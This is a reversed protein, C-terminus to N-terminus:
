KLLTAVVRFGIFPDYRTVDQPKSDRLRMQAGAYEWGGGRINVRNAAASGRQVPAHTLEWVNGAIDLLGFPSAGNPFMGVATPRKIQSEQFNGFTPDFVDGSAFKLGAPGRAAAEWERETPLRVEFGLRASLWRTFAIAEVYAVSERPYNPVQWAGPRFELDDLSAVGKPPRLGAWWAPNKYDQAFTDFQANTVLYRSMTFRPVEVEEDGRDKTNYVIARGEVPVWDFQPLGDHLGVGLRVDGGTGDPHRDNLREGFRARAKPAVRLNAKGRPEMVARALPHSEDFENEDICRWAVNPNVDKLWGIVAWADFGVRKHAGAAVGALLVASEDWPTALWWQAGPWFEAASRGAQLAKALADAAFYQQLLQHTFRVGDAMREFLNASFAFDVIHRARQPDNLHAALHSVIAAEPMVTQGQRQMWTAAASLAAMQEGAAIWPRGPRVARRGQEEIMKEAFLAFLEGQNRPPVGEREFIEITLRLLYPNRALELAGPLKDENRSNAWLEAYKERLEFELALYPKFLEPRKETQWFDRFVEALDPEADFAAAAEYWAGFLEWTAEGALGWFLAQASDDDLGQRTMFTMLMAIDLPLVDFRKLDLQREDYEIKRCTVIARVDPNAKLWRDVAEVHPTENLGDLLFVLRNQRKYDEYPLHKLLGALYGDLDDSTLGGLPALLPLPAAEGGDAAAADGLRRAFVRLTTTKGCGPEGVLALRTSNAMAELLNQRSELAEREGQPQSYGTSTHAAVKVPLANRPLLPLGRRPKAAPAAAKATLDTFRGLDFDEFGQWAGELYLKERERLSMTSTRQGRKSEIQTVLAAAGNAFADADGVLDFLPSAAVQGFAQAGPALRAVLVPRRINPAKAIAIQERLRDPVEAGAAFRETLLLVVADSEHIAKAFADDPTQAVADLSAWTEFGREALFKALPAAVARADDPHLALYVKKM